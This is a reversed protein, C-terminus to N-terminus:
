LVFSPNLLMASRMKAREMEERLCKRFYESLSMSQQKARQKALKELDESLSISVPKAKM